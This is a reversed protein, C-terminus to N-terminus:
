GKLQAHFQAEPYVRDKGNKKGQYMLQDVRHVFVKIDEQPKYQALGISVTVHVDQGPAPSFHEKKFETRIREATVAGDSGTTMPLIITFEEGGYRYATDTQRLCRKVVQGLRFLVQDGEVHGYADNFAKFNDLDLLLLTLLQGYRNSRETESKLQVYFHRSNYLQTLDDIISLERYKQESERLEEEMRKRETIDAQLLQNSQALEATREQIRAELDGRAHILMINNEALERTRKWVLRQLTVLWFGAIVAIAIVTIITPLFYKQVKRWPDDFSLWKDYIRDYEGNTKVILLGQNLKELLEKDGKKVAFSFVRKYDPITPGATLGTLGHNKLIITGILKSCLFADHKGSSILSLGAPITDVPILKGQFNRELLENHAADSRMVVIAKGRAAAIDPIAPDGKRVFFADFTQTHPLSFDVLLQREPLKAVIPLVDLQGTVLANWVTDWSGTSIKISLGMANTVAKILDVSFGAAQGSEDVFAYPPFDLESGVRLEQSNGAANCPGSALGGAFLMFVITFLILVSLEEIRKPNTRGQDNM